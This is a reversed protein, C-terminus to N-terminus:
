VVYSGQAASGRGYTASLQAVFFTFSQNAGGLDALQQDASYTVSPSDTILTRKFVGDKWIDAEYREFEEGLPVDAQDWGDGGIRTRRIWSIKLDGGPEQTTKLHVPALPREGRGTMTVQYSVFEPDGVAGGAPGVQWNLPLGVQGRDLGTQAMGGSPVVVRAGAAAGMASESGRQGRLLNSLRYTRTGTLEASAYQLLEWDGSAAQILLPNGGALVQTQDLSQLSGSVLEVEVSNARDWRYLPGAALDTKTEGIIGTVSLSARAVYFSDSPSSLFVLGPRFPLKTGTLYGQHASDDDRLLPGDIFVGIAGATVLPAGLSQIRGDSAAPEYILPDYSAAEMRRGAGDAARVLRATHQRGGAPVRVVDGPELALDKDSVGFTLRERGAWSEAVLSEAIAQTRAHDLVLPTNTAVVRDSSVEELLGEGTVPAFDRSVDYTTLRMAKPLETQQARTVTVPEKDRGQDLLEFHGLAKVPAAQRRTRAKIKGGSELPDFHFAIGLNELVSRASTVNDIIYGDGAGAFGTTEFDTGESLGAKGLLLRALGDCPLGGFRGSIWHGRYFNGHDAWTDSAVPFSPFPRIDWAWAFMNATDVMPGGYIGTAPNNAPDAWFEQMARFYRRQILDDRAGSSFYPVFSESTKPDFFVNPQNSGKDIAPCGYETFWIPKSRAAWATAAGSRVGGPRDHHANQWWNWLDKQRFIWDEGHPTDIIATRTQSDRDSASAYYWDYYEGGAINAKLYAPDYISSHGAAQDLHEPTTRWDSLPMYNDIGIFDLNADSWLPDLHFLVDGSGDDPRHSHYESWDAAYGLKVAGGLMSRVDGLLTQLGDVFPFSNGTGRVTTMGPMETGIVFADVGGALKTVQALHLIFRRYSWENPGSYTVTSGSGGFHAAQATGLFVAAQTEAAATKDPTGPQGPAPHCTIRGRWPYVAQEAKGYPDALGNGSPVDMMIFPYLLVNLGRNKLDQIAAVLSADNPSGGFAPKGDVRSVELADVRDLGAVHWAVPTTTKGNFEVRPTITCNGCRLDNGFWAVVLAVSGVSPCTAQLLDLSHAWDTEHTKTHRNNDITRGGGADDKVLTPSYGFETSGPLFCVGTLAEEEYGVARIVEFTLQPIRNGFESLLLDEFVVYATGRYAPAKGLGQKAEILADPMQSETGKYIRMTLTTLDLEKGDAWVRLVQSIPGECLGVAFSAYYFYETTTTTVGGGGGKGGQTQSSTRVEERLNTAWIVQGSLRAHGAIIPIPTGETSSLVQLSELRQGEVSQSTGGGGFLVGDLLTGGLTAAGTILSATVGSLGFSGVLSSAAASLLLTAM